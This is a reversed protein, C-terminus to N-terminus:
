VYGLGKKNHKIVAAIPNVIGEGNIGLPSGPAWGMAKLLRNGINTEDIPQADQAVTIIDLMTPMTIMLFSSTSTKKHDNHRKAKGDDNKEPTKHKKRSSRRLEDKGEPPGCKPKVLIHQFMDTMDEYSLICTRNTKTLTIMKNKGSGIYQPKLNYFMGLKQLQHQQM